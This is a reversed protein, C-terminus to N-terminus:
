QKINKDVKKTIKPIINRAKRQKQVEKIKMKQSSSSEM